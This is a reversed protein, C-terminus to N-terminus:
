DRPRWQRSDLVMTVPGDNTLSVQMDAQFVGTAVVIELDKVAQIFRGYLVVATEPDAAQLFSPRRGKRCDGLLTFQSVALLAGGVQKLSLNMKGQEDEFIRLGVIRDALIEADQPSDDEAVGLLVVLGHHIRGVERQEVTVHAETVRQIVALM